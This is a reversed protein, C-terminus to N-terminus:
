FVRAIPSTDSVLIIDFTEFYERHKKFYNNAREKGINYKGKTGDEFIHFSTKIKLKKCIYMIDYHIDITFGIHLLRM